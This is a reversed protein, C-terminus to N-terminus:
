YHNIQTLSIIDAFQYILLAKFQVGTSSQLRFILCYDGDGDKFCWIFPYRELPNNEDRICMKSDTSNLFLILLAARTVGCRVLVGGRAEQQQKEDM